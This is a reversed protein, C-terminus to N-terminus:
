LSNELSIYCLLERLFRFAWRLDQARSLDSKNVVLFNVRPKLLNATVDIPIFLDQSFIITAHTLM